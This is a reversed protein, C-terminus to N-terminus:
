DHVFFGYARFNTGLWWDDGASGYRYNDHGAQSQLPQLVGGREDRTALHVGDEPVVVTIHGPGDQEDRGACVLGIGGLNAAEQLASAGIVRRWGFQAGFDDLWGVLDDAGMARVTQGYAVPPTNGAVIAALAKATWWVRPLYAGALCCYDAAYTCGYTPGPDGRRYRASAEVMLWDAIAALDACKEAAAGDTRRTPMRPEGLPYARGTASARTPNQNGRSLHAAPVLPVELAALAHAEPTPEGLYRRAVHGYLDHAGSRVRVWGPTSTGLVDVLAGQPLVLLPANGLMTPAARLNLSLATVMMQRAAAAAPAMGIPKFQGCAALSQCREWNAGLACRSEGENLFQKITWDAYDRSEAWGTSEALWTFDVYYLEAKLLRCALGSGYVGIRFSPANPAAREFAAKVGAFYPMVLARLQPESFDADVAFYIASGVPQGTEAAYLFASMGDQEGRARGFDEPERANDQYVTVIDLGAAALTAAEGPTLHKEPQRTTRSYYRVVFAQGAERLCAASPGCHRNTSLGNLPM